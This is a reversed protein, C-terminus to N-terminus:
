TFRKSIVDVIYVQCLFKFPFHSYHLSNSNPANQSLSASVNLLLLNASSFLFFRFESLLVANCKFSTFPHCVYIVYTFMPLDNHTIFAFSFSIDSFCNWEEKKMARAFLFIVPSLRFKYLM